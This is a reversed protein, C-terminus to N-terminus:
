KMSKNFVDQRSDKPSIDMVDKQKTQAKIISNCIINFYKDASVLAEIAQPEEMNKSVQLNNISKQLQKSLLGRKKLELFIDAISKFVIRTKRDKETISLRQILSLDKAYKEKNPFVQSALQEITADEQLKTELLRIRYKV